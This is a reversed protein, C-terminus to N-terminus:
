HSRSRGMLKRGAGVLLWPAAFVALFPAVVLFAWAVYRFAGLDVTTFLDLATGVIGALGMVIVLAGGLIRLRRNLQRRAIRWAVSSSVGLLGIPGRLLRPGQARMVGATTALAAISTMTALNSGVEKGINESGVLQLAFLEELQREDLASLDVPGDPTAVMSRLAVCFAKGEASVRGGLAGDQEIEAIVSPLEERLIAAQIARTHGGLTGDNTLRHEFMADLMLVLREAADLRGWMWDNARWSRKLFAGFHALEVGALKDIPASRQLEDIAVTGKSTFQVLRIEQDPRPETGSFTAEIVEVSLLLRTLEAAKAAGDHLRVLGRLAVLPKPDTLPHPAAITSRAHEVFETLCTALTALQQNLASISAAADAPNGAPWRRSARDFADRVSVGEARLEEFFMWEFVGASPSILDAEARVRSVKEKMSYLGGAIEPTAVAAVTNIWTILVSALRRVPASGWCWDTGGLAPENAVWPVDDADIEDLASLDLPSGGVRLRTPVGIRIRDLSNAIRTARYAPFLADAVNAFDVWAIEPDVEAFQALMAHRAARRSRVELNHEDLDSVFESLSQTRPIGVISKMLVENLTPIGEDARGLEGPDPVVLALVREVRERSPQRIISEITSRAPLNVLLAGDIVPITTSTVEDFLGAVHRRNYLDVPVDSPEFAGPFSATSRCARAIRQIARDDAAFDFDVNRFVFEARHYVSSIEGQNSITTARGGLSTATLRVIVPPDVDVFGTGNKALLEFAAEIHPLFNGDGNLLSILSADTPRRLLGDFSGHDLWLQKIPKLNPTGHIIATGLFAANLGGASSGALVDVKPIIDLKRCLEVYPNANDHEDNAARKGANVFRLVEDVVGGIWIALSVGGNLAFAFRIETAM